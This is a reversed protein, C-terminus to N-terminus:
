VRIFMPEQLTRKERILGMIEMQVEHSPEIHGHPINQLLISLKKELKNITRSPWKRNKSTERWKKSLNSSTLGLKKAAETQPLHLYPALDVMTSSNRSVQPVEPKHLLQKELSELESRFSMLTEVTERDSESQTQSPSPTSAELSQHRSITEEPYFKFQSPSSPFFLESTPMPSLLSAFDM